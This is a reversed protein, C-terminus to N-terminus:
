CSKIFGKRDVYPALFACIVATFYPLYKVGFPQNFLMMSIVGIVSSLAIGLIFGVLLGLVVTSFTRM